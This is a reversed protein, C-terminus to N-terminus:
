VSQGFLGGTHLWIGPEFYQAHYHLATLCFRFVSTRQGTLVRASTKGLGSLRTARVHHGAPQAQFPLFDPAPATKAKLRTLEESLGAQWDAVLAALLRSIDRPESTGAVLHRLFRDRHRQYM